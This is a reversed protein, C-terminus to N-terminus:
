SFFYDSALVESLDLTGPEPPDEIGEVDGGAELLQDLLQFYLDNIPDHRTYLHYFAQRTAKALAPMRSPLTGFSDHIMSFCEVGDHSAMDVTLMMAAADLSHVFNPSIGNAQRLPNVRKSKDQVKPQYRAGGLFTDVQRATNHWYSIGDQLVPFGTEPVWWSVYRGERALARAAAQMWKRAEYAGVVVGALAQEILGALYKCAKGALTIIDGTEENVTSFFAEEVNGWVEVKTKLHNLLQDTFGYQESGYGFTMVPRKVLKRDVLGSALWRRALDRIPVSLVEGGGAEEQLRDLVAESIRLYVDQPTPNARVNVAEAGVPDRLLAAFHQLGNCSGDVSVPLHCVYEEGHEEVGRWAFCFALFQFPKDAETWWQNGLPDEAVGVIRPSLREILAVREEITLRSLKQGQYEDLCNAGHLALWRIGEPGIAEGDGFELLGRALDSGQPQLFHPIPYARGRFDLNWPFWFHPDEEVIEVISMLHQFSMAVSRREIEEAHWRTKLSKYEKLAQDFGETQDHEDLIAPRRPPEIPELRPIGAREGGLEVLAKVVDLVRLNIRWPTEQIRNVAEYVKPIEAQDVLEKHKKTSRVFPEKDFLGFRYGGSKGPGWSLPPVVMPLHVPCLVALIENRNNMWEQAEETIELYTHTQIKRNQQPIDEVREVWGPFAELFLDIMKLGIRLREDQSLDLDDMVLHECPKGRERVGAEWCETCIAQRLSGGMSRAIHAKHHGQVQAMRYKFLGPALEKFRRARIEDMVRATLERATGSALKRGGLASLVARCTFYATAEPGIKIIWKLATHRRGKASLSHEVWASTVAEMASLAESLLRRAAGVRTPEGKELAKKLRRKFRKGGWALSVDELEQQREFDLHM